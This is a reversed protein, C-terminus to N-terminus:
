LEQIGYGCHRFWAMANHPSVSAIAETLSEELREVTRVKLGRLCQKIKGWCPEIPNFDPSYSPLYRLEAGTAEIRQRVGEVKHASLNDMVVWRARNCSRVSCTSWIRWSSMAMPPTEVSMTALLGHRTMAQVLFGDLCDFRPAEAWSRFAALGHVNGGQDLNCKSKQLSRTGLVEPLRSCNSGANGNQFRLPM